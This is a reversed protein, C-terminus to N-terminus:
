TAIIKNVLLHDVLEVFYKRNYPIKELITYRKKERGRERAMLLAEIVQDKTLGIESLSLTMGLKDVIRKIRLFDAGQVYSMILSGLAVLEGHLPSTNSIEEACFAFLHESGSAPASGIWDTIHCLLVQILLYDCVWTRLPAEVDFSEIMSFIYDILDEVLLNEQALGEKIALQWDFRATYFAMIDGLGARILRPQSHNITELIGIDLLAIHPPCGDITLDYGLERIPKLAHIKPSAYVHSTLSTPFAVMKMQTQLGIFKLIDMPRGGGIGILMDFQKQKKVQDIINLLSEGSQIEELFFLQPVKVSDFGDVHTKVFAFPGTETVVVSRSVLNPWITRILPDGAVVGSSVNCETSIGALINQSLDRSERAFETEFTERFAENLEEVKQSLIQKDENSSNSRLESTYKGKLDEFFYLLMNNSHHLNHKPDLDM